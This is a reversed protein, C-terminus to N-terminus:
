VCQRILLLPTNYPNCQGRKLYFFSFFVSNRFLNYLLLFSFLSFVNCLIYINTQNEPKFVNLIRLYNGCKEFITVEVVGRGM